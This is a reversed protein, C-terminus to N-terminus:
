KLHTDTPQTLQNSSQTIRLHPTACVYVAFDDAGHAPATHVIGTGAESTVHDGSIIPVHSERLPHIASLGVLDSGSILSVQELHDQEGELHTRFDEVLDQAVILLDRKHRLLAYKMNENVCLAMNAPITWPTTTWVVAKVVDNDKFLNSNTTDVRFSVHVATSRHESNYELEAEALASRSSPSWYVPRFGRKILGDRVLQAFLRLQEAEYEPDMTHYERDILAPVNDDGGNGWDALVGWRIMDSRQSAIAQEACKRARKRIEMPTTTEGKRLEKLAKLEIPLGHCDWGPLYSVRKGRLLASRNIMDKLVKNLFHGVHLDGNAYPPGDHLVFEDSNTSSRTQQQYRYLTTTSREVYNRERVAANARMPFTTKPLFLTSRFKHKLQKSSM